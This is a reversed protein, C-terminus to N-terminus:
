YLILRIEVIVHKPEHVTHQGMETGKCRWCKRNICATFEIKKVCNDESAVTLSHHSASIVESCLKSVGIKIRM